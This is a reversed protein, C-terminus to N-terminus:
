LSLRLRLKYTYIYIYEDIVVTCQFSFLNNKTVRLSAMGKTKELMSPFLGLVPSKNFFDITVIAGTFHSRGHTVYDNDVDNLTDLLM